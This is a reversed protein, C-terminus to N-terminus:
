GSPHRHRAAARRGARGCHGRGAGTRRSRGGAAITRAAGDLQVVARGSCAARKLDWTVWCTSCNPGIMAWCSYRLTCRKTDQGIMCKGRCYEVHACHVICMPHVKGCPYVAPLQPTVQGVASGRLIARCASTDDVDAIQLLMVVCNESRVYGDAAADLTKCRGDAALM